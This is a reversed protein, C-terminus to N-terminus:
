VFRTRINEERVKYHSKFDRLQLAQLHEKTSPLFQVMEDLGHLSVISSANKIGHEKAIDKRVSQLASKLLKQEKDTLRSQGLPTESVSSNEQRSRVLIRSGEVEEEANKGDSASNNNNNNNSNKKKRKEDREGDLGESRSSNRRKGNVNVVAKEGYRRGSADSGDSLVLTLDDRDNRSLSPYPLCSRYPITDRGVGHEGPDRTTSGKCFSALSEGEDERGGQGSRVADHSLETDEEELGFFSGDNSPRKTIKSVSREEEKRKEACSGSGRYSSSSSSYLGGLSSASSSFTDRPLTSGGGSSTVTTARHKRSRAMKQNLSPAGAHSRENLGESKSHQSRKNSSHSDPTLLVLSSVLRSAESARPGLDLYATFGTFSSSGASTKTSSVCREALVQLLLFLHFFSLSGGSLSFFIGVM